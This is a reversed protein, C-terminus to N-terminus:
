PRLRMPTAAHRGVVEEENWGMLPWNVIWALEDADPPGEVLVCDPAFAELADESRGILILDEGRAMWIGAAARAICSTAGFVAIAWKGPSTGGLRGM